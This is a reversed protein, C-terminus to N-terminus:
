FLVKYNQIAKLVSLSLDSPLSYWLYLSQTNWLSYQKFVKFLFVWSSNHNWVRSFHCVIISETVCKTNKFLKFIIYANASINCVKVRSDTKNAHSSTRTFIFVLDRCSVAEWHIFVSEEPLQSFTVLQWTLTMHSATLSVFNWIFIQSWHNTPRKGCRSCGIDHEECTVEQM